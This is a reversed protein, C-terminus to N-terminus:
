RNELVSFKKKMILKFIGTLYGYGYSLHVVLFIYPLLIILKWDKLVIARKISISFAILFYVGLVSAYLIIAWLFFLSLIAGFVIGLVFLVPFFQRLTAASGLKKNVLPKFLGYQYYMKSAKKISDRAFYDIVLGPILFIKGGNKILRANFEDDQNRILDEDFLGIKDFVERRYCGFPVTDTEIIKNSGIKHKSGGVGFVHSSAISISRCISTEKAPKTNWIAGVNDANLEYLKHELLSLYNTPYVCHGDLRVIVDGKSARIGINLAQPVYRDPNEFLKIFGYDKIYSSIIIKTKDTSMGDIFLVELNDHPYDQMLISKICQEIYKEENYVPCIISIINNNKM